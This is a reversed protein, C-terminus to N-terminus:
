ASDRPTDRSGNRVARPRRHSCGAGPAFPNARGMCGGRRASLSEGDIELLGDDGVTAAITGSPEERIAYVARDHPGLPLLRSGGGREDLLHLGRGATGIWLRARRDVFLSYITELAEGAPVVTEAREGRVRALGSQTGVWLEGRAGAAVSYVANAPLGERETWRAVPAGPRWRVLGADTGIWLAGSRDVVLALVHPGPLPEGAIEEFSEFRHGDFRVLGEQTGVWLEGAAGEALAMVSGQPLGQDITWADHAYQTLRRSPDLAALAGPLALGVFLGAAIRNM